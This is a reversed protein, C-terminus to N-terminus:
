AVAELFDPSLDTIRKAGVLLMADSLEKQFFELVSTVGPAGGVAMAYLVPRGIGVATAGLSLARVADIGRRIGSDMLVPVRGNVAKVIPALVAISTPAGDLTRGGHNSVIVGAAGADVCRAADEPRLIGKVLVPLGGSAEHLFVIDDPSFDKKNRSPSGIGGFRPDYNGYGASKTKPAGLALYADSQGPGLSDVTMVVASYGAARARQVLRRNVTQDTNMYLAFWRPGSASAAAVEELPKNSASSLVYLPGAAATGRASALEADEHAFDQAGMPCVYFPAPLDHGLLRIRLDPQDFGALRHPKLPLGRLAAQNQRLTWEDGAGGQIYAFAGPPLIQRAAEELRGASLVHLPQEARSQMLPEKAAPENPASAAMATAAGPLLAAGTLGALLSRRTFLPSPM